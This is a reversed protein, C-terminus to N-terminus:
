PRKMHWLLSIGGQSLNEVRSGQSDPREIFNVQSFGMSALALMALTALCSLPLRQM